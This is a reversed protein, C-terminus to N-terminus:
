CWGANEEVIKAGSKGANRCQKKKGRGTSQSLARQAATLVEETMVGSNRGFVGAEGGQEQILLVRKRKGMSFHECRCAGQTV